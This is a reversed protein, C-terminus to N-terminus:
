LNEISPIINSKTIGIIKELILVIKHQVTTKEDNHSNKNQLEVM